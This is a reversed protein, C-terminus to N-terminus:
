LIYNLTERKLQQMYYLQTIYTNENFYNKIRNFNFELIWNPQNLMSFKEYNILIDSIQIKFENVRLKFDDYIQNILAKTYMIKLAFLFVVLAASNPFFQKNLLSSVDGTFSIYLIISLWLIILFFVVVVALDQLKTLM